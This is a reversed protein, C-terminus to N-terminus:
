QKSLREAITSKFGELDTKKLFGKNEVVSNNEFNVYGKVFFSPITYDLEENPTYFSLGLEIVSNKQHSRAQHLAFNFLDKPICIVLLFNGYRRYLQLKYHLDILDASIEETTKHFSDTYKFGSELIQQATSTDYTFHIFVRSDELPSHIFRIIPSPIKYTPIEYSRKKDRIIKEVVEAKSIKKDTDFGFFDSLRQFQKRYDQLRFYQIAIIVTIGITILVAKVISFLEEYTLDTSGLTEEM